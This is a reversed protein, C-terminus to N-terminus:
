VEQTTKKLIGSVNLSRILVPVGNLDKILILATKLQDVFKHGIKIVGHQKEIDYKENLISVGSDAMGKQGFYSAIQIKLGSLVDGVQNQSIVEFAVYRKKAKLSPLLPKM